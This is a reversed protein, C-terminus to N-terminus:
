KLEQIVKDTIDEADGFMVAQKLYVYSLGDEDAVKSIATTVQEQLEHGQKAQEQQAANMAVSFSAAQQKAKAELSKKEAGKAKAAQSRTTMLTTYQAKLKAQEPGSTAMIKKGMAQVTPSQLVQQMDIVGVKQSGNAAGKEHCAVLASSLLVVGLLLILKKSISKM